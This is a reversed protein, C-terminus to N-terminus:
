AGRWSSMNPSHLYLEAGQQGRCEEVDTNSKHSIECELYIFNSVQEGIKGDVIIKAGIREVGPFTMVKTKKSFFNLNYKRVIQSLKYVAKQL